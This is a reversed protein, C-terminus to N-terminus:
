VHRYLYVITRGFTRTTVTEWRDHSTPPPETTATEVVVFAGPELLPELLALAEDRLPGAYPPDVFVLSFRRGEAALTRLGSRSDGRVIRTRPRCKLADLNQELARLAAPDKELFVATPAGRSLAEIGLAGSGAFVDLADGPSWRFALLDFMTQRVRDATPRVALGAPARLQRGRFEGTIVRM